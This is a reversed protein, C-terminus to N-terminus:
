ELELYPRIRVLEDNSFIRNYILESMDTFSGSLRRFNIIAEVQVQNIYPHRLLDSYAATNINIKRVMSSDCKLRDRNMEIVEMDLGYVENLQDIRYFYGILYRYKVIRASLVPGIGPLAELGASDARNIDVSDWGPNKINIKASSTSLLASHSMEQGNGDEAKGQGGYGPASGAEAFSQRVPSSILM